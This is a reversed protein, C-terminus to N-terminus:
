PNSLAPVSPTILASNGGQYELNYLAVCRWNRSASFTGAPFEPILAATSAAKKSEPKGTFPEGQQRTSTTLNPQNIQYLM